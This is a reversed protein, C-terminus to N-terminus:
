LSSGVVPMCETMASEWTASYFQELSQGSWCATWWEGLWMQLCVMFLQKAQDVSGVTNKSVQSSLCIDREWALVDVQYFGPVILLGTLSLSAMWRKHPM